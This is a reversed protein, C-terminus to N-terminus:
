GDLSSFFTVIENWLSTLHTGVYKDWIYGASGHVGVTPTDWDVLQCDAKMITPWETKYDRSVLYQMSDVPDFHEEGNDCMEKKVGQTKGKYIVGSKFTCQILYALNNWKTCIANKARYDEKSAPAGYGWFLGIVHAQKNTSDPQTCAHASYSQSELHVNPHSHLKVNTSCFARYLTLTKGDDLTIKKCTGPVIGGEGNPLSKAFAVTDHTAECDEWHWATNDISDDGFTMAKQELSKSKTRGVKRKFSAGVAACVLSLVVFLVL